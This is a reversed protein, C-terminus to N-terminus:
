ISVDDQRRREDFYDLDSIPLIVSTSINTLHATLRKFYRAILTFCVSENPSLGGKALSEIIKDCGKVIKSEYDWSTVAKKEDSEIFAEKTRDFLKSIEKDTHNFLGQYRAKDIPKDLLQTVEFLNKCYDGLREADKVVSMLLLCASADASPNISLHEVIRKRIDKELSNIKEDLDYIKDKLGPIDEGGILKACVSDFMQHADVLMDKFEELVASLFSEGRWFNLLNGFM